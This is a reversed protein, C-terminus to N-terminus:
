QVICANNNIPIQERDSNNDTQGLRVGCGGMVHGVGLLHTINYQMITVEHLRIIYNYESSCVQSLSVEGSM